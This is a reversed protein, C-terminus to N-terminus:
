ALHVASVDIEQGDFGVARVILGDKVFASCAVGWATFAKAWM